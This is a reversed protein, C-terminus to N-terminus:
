MMSILIMVEEDDKRLSLKKRLALQQYTWNKGGFVDVIVPVAGVSGWYSNGWYSNAFYEKDIVYDIIPTTIPVPVVSSEGCYCDGWYSDSFYEDSIIYDKAM